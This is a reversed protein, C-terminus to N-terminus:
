ASRYRRRIESALARAAGPKIGRDRGADALTDGNGFAVTLAFDRQHPTRAVREILALADHIGQATAAPDDASRESPADEFPVLAAESAAHGGRKLHRRMRTQEHENAVVSRRVRRLLGRRDLGPWGNADTVHFATPKSLLLEAQVLASDATPLYKLRKANRAVARRDTDILQLMTAYADALAQNLVRAQTRRNRLLGAIRATRGDGDSHALSREVADLWPQVYRLIAGVRDDVSDGHRPHRVWGVEVLLPAAVFLVLHAADVIDPQPLRDAAQDGRDLAGILDVLGLGVVDELTLPPHHTLLEQIWDRTRQLAMTTVPSALGRTLRLRKVGPPLRARTRRM